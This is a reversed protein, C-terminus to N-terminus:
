RQAFAATAVVAELRQIEADSLGAIVLSVVHGNAITSFYSQRVPRNDVRATLDARYFIRGGVKTERIEGSKAYPIVRDDQKISAGDLLRTM